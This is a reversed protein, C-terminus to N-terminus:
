ELAQLEKELNEIDEKQGKIQSKIIKLEEPDDEIKLRTQFYKLVDKVDALNEKLGDIYARRVEPELTDFVEKLDERDLYAARIDRLPADGKLILKDLEEGDASKRLADQFKNTAESHTISKNSVESLGKDKRAQDPKTTRM